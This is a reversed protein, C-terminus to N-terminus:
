IALHFLFIQKLQKLIWICTAHSLYIIVHGKRYPCQYWGEFWILGQSPGQALILKQIIGPFIHYLVHQLRYNGWIHCYMDKNTKIPFWQIKITTNTSIETQLRRDWQYVDSNNIKNKGHISLISSLIHVKNIHEHTEEIWTNYNMYTYLYWRTNM